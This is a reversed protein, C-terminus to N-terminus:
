DYYGSKPYNRINYGEYDNETCADCRFAGDFKCTACPAIAEPAEAMKKHFEERILNKHARVLRNHAVIEESTAEKPNRVFM